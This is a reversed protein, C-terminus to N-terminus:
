IHCIHLIRFNSWMHLFKFYVSCLDYTYLSMPICQRKMTLSLRSIAFVETLMLENRPFCLSGDSPHWKTTHFINFADNSESAGGLALYRLILHLPFLLNGCALGTCWHLYKSSNPVGESNFVTNLPFFEWTPLGGGGGGTHSNKRRFVTKKRFIDWLSFFLFFLLSHKLM